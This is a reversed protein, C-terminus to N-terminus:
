NLGRQASEEEKKGIGMMDKLVQRNESVDPKELIIKINKWGHRQIWVNRWLKRKLSFSIEFGLYSYQTNM